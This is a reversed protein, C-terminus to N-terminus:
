RGIGEESDESIEHAGSVESDESSEYAHKRRMIRINQVNLSLIVSTTPVKVSKAGPLNCCFVRRQHRIKEKRGAQQVPLSLRASRLM